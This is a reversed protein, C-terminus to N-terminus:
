DIYAEPIQQGEQANVFNLSLIYWRDNLFTLSYANIGKEDYTGTFNKAHFSQFVNAMGNFEHVRTGLSVELFGERAYAPGIREIFEEVSFARVQKGEPADPRTSYFSAGPAFLSRFQDWDREEDVAGSILALFLDTIGEPSKLPDLDQAMAQNLFSLQFFLMLLIGLRM